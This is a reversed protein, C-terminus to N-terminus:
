FITTASSADPLALIRAECISLPEVSLQETTLKSISIESKVQASKPSLVTSSVTDSWLPFLPEAVAVTVTSSLIFGVTTVCSMTTANSADPLALIRAECISLPEVSLQETTLKSISMESKVQASKPSLVTSSVTVSWLPLLLEAVAM